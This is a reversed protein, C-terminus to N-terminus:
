HLARKRVDNVVREAESINHARANVIRQEAHSTVHQMISAQHAMENQEKLHSFLPTFCRICFFLVKPLATDSHASSM